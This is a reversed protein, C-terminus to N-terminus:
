TLPPGYDPFSGERGFSTHGMTFPTSALVALTAADLGPRELGAYQVMLGVLDRYRPVPVSGLLVTDPATRALEIPNAADFTLLSAERESPAYQDGASEAGIRRSASAPRPARDLRYRIGPYRNGAYRKDDIPECVNLSFDFGGRTQDARVLLLHEGAEIYGPVRDMGLVHRRRGQHAYVPRGDLWVTLGEDSGVWFRVSDSHAMTFRTFAYVSCDVPDDFQKDLDIQDSGFYVPSSWGDQGPVPDLAALEAPTWAHDRPFPGLLSWYRPGMGYTAHESWEGWNGYATGAKKWRSILPEVAAGRVEVSDITRPGLDNQWALEAFEFDDPNFGMLRGVVLDTAVPNRGALVLNCRKTDNEEFAGAQSGTIMDVVNLDVRTLGYLDLWAEDMLRPSHPMGPHSATGSSKSWGYLRGPLLGFHNKLCCTIKAGHTKAVPLNIWADADLVAAAISYEPAALGGGPPNLSYVRDFNLDYCDIELGRSRLERAVARLGALEFGDVTHGGLASSPVSDALAPSIWGGPGEAILIRARPAVEHVLLAVARVVRDDTIIGSRAQADTGVNPKLLVLRATDPVVSGMGGILDVARRVMALVQDATLDQDRGVPRTLAADDSPVVSVPYTAMAPAALLLLCLVFQSITGAVRPGLLRSM